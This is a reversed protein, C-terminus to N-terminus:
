QNIENVPNIQWPLRSIMEQVIKRFELPNAVNEFFEKSGGTGNIEISGYGLIRGILEQNVHVTEIKNINMEITYISFVGTKVVVRKNTVGFETTCYKLLAEIVPYILWFFLLPKVFYVWHLKTKYAVYEDTLMNHEIYKSM